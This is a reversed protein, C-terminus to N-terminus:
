PAKPLGFTQTWTFTYLGAGEYFGVGTEKYVGNMLNACHEDSALWGAVADAANDPGGAVNEGVQVFEYGTKAIRDDPGEGDPNIHGLFARESMDQSHVRAACTLRPNVTLPGVPPMAGFAGCTVGQARAQNVLDVVEAERSEWPDLWKMPSALYCYATMWVDEDGGGTSGASSGESEGTSGAGSTAATSGASASATGTTTASGGGDDDGCALPSAALALALAPALHRPPRTTM